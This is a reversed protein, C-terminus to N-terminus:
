LLLMCMMRHEETKFYIVSFIYDWVAQEDFHTIEIDGLGSRKVLTAPRGFHKYMFDFSLMRSQNDITYPFREEIYKMFENKTVIDVKGVFL